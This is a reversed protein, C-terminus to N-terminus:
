QEKTQEVHLIEKCTRSISDMRSAKNQLLMWQWRPISMMENNEASDKIEPYQREIVESLEKLKKLEENAECIVKLEDEKHRTWGSEQVYNEAINLADEINSINM